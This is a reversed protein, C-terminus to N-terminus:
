FQVSLSNMLIMLPIMITNRMHILWLLTSTPSVQGGSVAHSGDLSQGHAVCLEWLDMKKFMLQAPKAELQVM